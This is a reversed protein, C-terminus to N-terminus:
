AVWIVLRLQCFRVSQWERFICVPGTGPMVTLRRGLAGWPGPCCLRGGGGWGDEHARPFGVSKISHWDQRLCLGTFVSM